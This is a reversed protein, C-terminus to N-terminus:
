RSGLSWHYQYRALLAFHDPVVFMASGAGAGRSCDARAVAVAIVSSVPLFAGAVTVSSPAVSVWSTTVMRLAEPAQTFSVRVTFSVTVRPGPMRGPPLDYVKTGPRWANSPFAAM